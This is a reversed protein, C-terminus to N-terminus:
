GDAAPATRGTGGTGRIGTCRSTNPRAGRGGARDRRGALGLQRSETIGPDLIRGGPEPSTQQTRGTGRSRRRPGEFTSLKWSHGVSRTIFAFSPFRRRTDMINYMGGHKMQDLRIPRSPPRIPPPRDILGIVWERGDVWVLWGVVRGACVSTFGARGFTGWKRKRSYKSKNVSFFKTDRLRM